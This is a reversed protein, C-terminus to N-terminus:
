KNPCPYAEQLRRVTATIPFFTGGANELNDNNKDSIHFFERYSREALKAIAESTIDELPYCIVSVGKKRALLEYYLISITMGDVGGKIYAEKTTNTNEDAIAVFSLSLILGGVLVHKM